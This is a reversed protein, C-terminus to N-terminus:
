QGTPVLNVANTFLGPCVDPLQCSEPLKPYIIIFFSSISKNEIIYLYAENIAAMPDIKKNCKYSTGKVIKELMPIISVFKANIRDDSM